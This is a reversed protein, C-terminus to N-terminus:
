TRKNYIPIRGVVGFAVWYFGGWFGGLGGWVGGRGAWRACGVALPAGRKACLAGSPPPHRAKAGCLYGGIDM